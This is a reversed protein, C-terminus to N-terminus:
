HVNGPADAGPLGVAEEPLKKIGRKLLRVNEATQADVPDPEQEADAEDKDEAEDEDEDFLDGAHGTHWLAEDLMDLYLRLSRIADNRRLEDPMKHLGAVISFAKKNLHGNEVAAKVREGFVGAISATRTKVAAAEQVLAVLQKENVVKDISNESM